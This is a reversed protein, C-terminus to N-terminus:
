TRRYREVVIDSFSLFVARRHYELAEASM